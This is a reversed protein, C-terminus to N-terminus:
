KNKRMSEPIKIMTKVKTAHIENLLNHIRTKPTDSFNNKFSIDDKDNYYVKCNELQGKEYSNNVIYDLLDRIPLIQVTGTTNNNVIFLEAKNKGAGKYGILSDCLLTLGMEIKAMKKMSTSIRTDKGETKYSLKRYLTKSPHHSMLNLYHNVFQDQNKDQIMAMFSGSSALSINGGGKKGLKINKVSTNINKQEINLVVDVKDQPKGHSQIKVGIEDIFYDKSLKRKLYESEVFNSLDIEVRSREQGTIGIFSALTDDITTIANSAILEPINIAAAILEMLDGKLLNIPPGKIETILTNIDSVLSGTEGDLALSGVFAKSSLNSIKYKAKRGLDLSSFDKLIQVLNDKIISIKKDLKSLTINDNTIIGKALQQRYTELTQIRNIINQIQVKEQNKKTKIKKLISTSPDPAPGVINKTDPNINISNPNPIKNRVAQEFSKYIENEYNQFEETYLQSSPKDLNARASNSKFIYNLFKELEQIKTKDLSSQVSNIRNKIKEKQSPYNDKALMETRTTTSYTNYSAAFLHVYNGIASAGSGFYNELTIGM